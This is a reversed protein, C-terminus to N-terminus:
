QYRYWVDLKYKVGTRAPATIVVPVNEATSIVPKLLDVRDIENKTLSTNVVLGAGSVNSFTIETESVAVSQVAVVAARVAEIVIRKDPLAPVTVSVAEDTLGWVGINENVVNAKACTAILILGVTSLKM